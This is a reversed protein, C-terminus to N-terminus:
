FQDKMTGTNKDKENWYTHKNNYKLNLVDKKLIKLILGTPTVVAFYVLAMIIPSFIKGLFLGFKFWIKNPLDLLKSNLIGLILFYLSIVLSWVRLESENLLPWLSIILFVLFFTIGFGRNSGIKVNDM